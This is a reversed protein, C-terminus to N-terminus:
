TINTDFGAELSKRWRCMHHPLSWHLRLNNLQQPASLDPSVHLKDDRNTGRIHMAPQALKTISQAVGPLPFLHSQRILMLARNFVVHRRTSLALLADLM